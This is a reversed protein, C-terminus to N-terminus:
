LRREAVTRVAEYAADYDYGRRTLFGLARARDAERDLPQGRRELLESARGVESEPSDTALAREVLDAAIERAALAGRIRAAGWGRLERKDEAYRRAFREDDLEGVETLDFIASEAVDPAYGRKRLWARLEASSREKRRLSALAAEFADPRVQAV